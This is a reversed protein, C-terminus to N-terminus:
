AVSAPVQVEEYLNVQDTHRSAHDINIMEFYFAFKFYIVYVHSCLVNRLFFVCCIKRNAFMKLLHYTFLSEEQICM